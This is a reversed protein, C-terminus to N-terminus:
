PLPVITASSENGVRLVYKRIFCMRTFDLKWEETGECRDHRRPLSVFVPGYAVLLFILFSEYCVKLSPLFCPAERGCFGYLSILSPSTPPPPPILMLM